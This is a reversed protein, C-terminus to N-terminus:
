KGDIRSWGEIAGVVFAGVPNTKLTELVGATLAKIAKQKWNPHSEIQEIAQSAIKMQEATTPNPYSQSLQELLKQIETVVDTFSEPEQEIFSDNISINKGQIVKANTVDGISYSENIPQQENM